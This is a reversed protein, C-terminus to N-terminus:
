FNRLETPIQFVQIFLPKKRALTLSWNLSPCTLSPANPIDEKNIFDPHRFPQLDRLWSIHLGSNHRKFEYSSEEVRLILYLNEELYTLIIVWYVQQLNFINYKSFLHFISLRDSVIALMVTSHLTDAALREHSQNSAWTWQKQWGANWSFLRISIGYSM